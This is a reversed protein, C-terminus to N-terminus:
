GVLTVFEGREIDFSIGNLVKFEIPDFFKKEINEVQLIM